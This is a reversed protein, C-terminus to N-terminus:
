HKKIGYTGYITTIGLTVNANVGLLVFIYCFSLLMLFFYLFYSKSMFAGFDNSKKNLYIKSLILVKPITHSFFKGKIESENSLKLAGCTQGNKTM